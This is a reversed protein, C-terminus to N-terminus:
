IYTEDIDDNETEVEKPKLVEFFPEFMDIINQNIESLMDLVKLNDM